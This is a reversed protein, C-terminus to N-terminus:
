QRPSSLKECQVFNRKMYRKMCNSFVVHKPKDLTHVKPNQEDEINRIGKLKNRRVGYIMSAM